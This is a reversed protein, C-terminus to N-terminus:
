APSPAPVPATPPSQRPMVSLDIHALTGDFHITWARRGHPKKSIHISDIGEDVVAFGGVADALLRVLTLPHAAEETWPAAILDLDRQMSGHLGLAYGCGKAANRLAPVISAYFAAPSELNCAKESM